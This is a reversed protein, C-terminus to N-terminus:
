LEGIAALMRDVENGSTQSTNTLVEAAVPINGWDPVETTGSSKREKILPVLISNIRKEVTSKWELKSKTYFGKTFPHWEVIAGDLRKVPELTWPSECPTKSRAQAEAKSLSWVVKWGNNELTIVGQVNTYNWTSM